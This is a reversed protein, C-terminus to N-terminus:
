LSWGFKEACIPGIGRGTSDEDTLKRNCIACRGTLKGHEIAKGLPDAAISLVADMAEQTCRALFKGGLMKGLYQGDEKVYIAGPNAGPTGDRRTAPAPSFCYKGVNIKPSRLTPNVRAFAKELQTTDVAASQQPARAMCRRVADLMGPTLFGHSVVREVMARAFDFSGKNAHMWLSEQPYEQAYDELRITANKM